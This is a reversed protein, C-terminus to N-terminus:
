KKLGNLSKGYLIDQLLSNLLKGVWLFFYRCKRNQILRRNSENTTKKKIVLELERIVCYAAAGQRSCGHWECILEKVKM